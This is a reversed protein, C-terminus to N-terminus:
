GGGADRDSAPPRVWAESSVELRRGLGPILVPPQMRVEVRGGEIDPEVRRAAWGPVASRVAPEPDRGAAIALAGAEASGDALSQAYGVAMLQLIIAAVAILAPIAAVLELQAQGAAGATSRAAGRKSPPAAARTM